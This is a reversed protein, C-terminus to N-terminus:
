FLADKSTVAIQAPEAARHKGAHPECLVVPGSPGPYVFLRWPSVGRGRHQCRHAGNKDTYQCQWGAAEVAATWSPPAGIPAWERERPAAPSLPFLPESTM